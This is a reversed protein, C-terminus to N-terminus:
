YNEYGETFKINFFFKLGKDKHYLYKCISLFFCMQRCGLKALRVKSTFDNKQWAIFSIFPMEVFIKDYKM